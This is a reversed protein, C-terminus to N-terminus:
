PRSKATEGTQRSRSRGRGRRRRGHSEAPKERALKQDRAPAGGKPLRFNVQKKFFDVEFVQVQIRDGLKFVRRKRRGMLRSNVPDYQYFDDDLRSVRVMGSVGLDTVEVFFGFNRVETIVGEYVHREGSKLQQDLHLMVKIMRSSEEADASNRETFSIHDATENLALRLLKTNEFLSRHVVLDAYRRIPSTFHTYDDKALGYHGLPEVAYRARKMARLVQIQLVSAAPHAKIKKLLQQLEHPQSLNGSRIGSRRMEAQLEKLRDPDPSEHIRYLSPRRLQKVRRAVAENALLMLEEILQHSIDHEVKDTRLFHGKEDLRIKYEPMDLDLSGGRNRRQRIRGALTNAARLMEEVGDTPRRELIRLAERYTFRRRSHIVASYFDTRMVTGDNGLLFEACKTLRDVNPNLSCLGNSLSEPLMPVVRDVLYTSNGRQRAERDLATGPKVYHSVDAIHVWLKWHNGDRQLFFADDFDKADDPDITVVAQWRCDKRGALDERRVEGPIAAAERRVASPFGTPLQYQRLVSVMDVGPADRKGLVEVIRGEPNNHRSPWETMEVVVKEGVPPAGKAGRERTVYIDHPIRPDDPIIYLFQPTKQLTGVVETRARELIRIVKGRPEREEEEPPLDPRAERRVLVRDLHLATGTAEAPILLRPLRPDEPQLIGGGSRTILIRGAILDADMPLTYRDHRIRAIRGQTELRKLLSKLEDLHQRGLRLKKALGPADLPVYSTQGLLKLVKEELNM